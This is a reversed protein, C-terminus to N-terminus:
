AVKVEISNVKADAKDLFSHVIKKLRERFAGEFIFHDLLVIVFFGMFLEKHKVFYERVFSPGMEKKEEKKIELNTLYPIPQQWQAAVSLQQARLNDLFSANAQQLSQTRMHEGWPVIGGPSNAM